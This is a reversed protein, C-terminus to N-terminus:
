PRRLSIDDTNEGRKVDFTLESTPPNAYRYPILVPGPLKSGKPANPNPDAIDPGRCDVAIQNMGVEAMLEFHGDAGIEATATRGSAAHVFLVTGNKLPSGACTIQGSVKAKEPVSGSCACLFLVLPIARIMRAVM